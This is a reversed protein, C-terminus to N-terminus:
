WRVRLRLVLSAEAHDDVDVTAFIRVARPSQETVTLGEVKCVKGDLKPLASTARVRAGDLITLSSGVVPGDDRPDVTDEAATSVLVLPEDAGTETLAVADTVALGVGDVEGLDHRIVRGPVLRAVDGEGAVVSVLESLALDVSATPLGASPLGRHFWRLRNGVVCAGEMNLMDAPVTLSDAVAAYLPALDAATARPVGGHLSVLAARMRNASSGSGLLLVAPRGDVEVECGAELDPKLHKTGSASDFLDHSEVAPFLRVPTVTDGRWWAAHTADDQAVLWGSGLRAIASAARVPAGDTFRLTQVAEVEVRVLSWGKGIGLPLLEPM